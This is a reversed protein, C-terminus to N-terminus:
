SEIGRGALFGKFSEQTVMDIIQGDVCAVSFGQGLNMSAWALYDNWATKKADANDQWVWELYPGYGDDLADMADKEAKWPPEVQDTM